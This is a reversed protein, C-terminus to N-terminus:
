SFIGRVNWERFPQLFTEFPNINTIHSLHAPSPSLSVCISGLNRQGYCCKKRMRSSQEVPIRLAWARQRSSARVIADQGWSRSPSLSHSCSSSFEGQRSSWREWATQPVQNYLQKVGVQKRHADCNCWIWGTWLDLHYGLIKSWICRNNVCTCRKISLETSPWYTVIDGTLFNVFLNLHIHKLFFSIHKMTMNQRMKKHILICYKYIYRNLMLICYKQSCDQVLGPPLVGCSVLQVAVQRRDCFSNLNSSGSM